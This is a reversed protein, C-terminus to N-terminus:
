LKVQHLSNSVILYMIIIVGAMQAWAKTYRQTVKALLRCRLNRMTITNVM